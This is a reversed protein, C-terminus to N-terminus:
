QPFRCYGVGQLTKTKFTIRKPQTVAHTIANTTFSFVNIKKLDMVTVRATVWAFRIMKLLSVTPSRTVAM